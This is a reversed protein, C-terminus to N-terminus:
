RKNLEQNEVKELLKKNMESLELIMKKMESVEDKLSAIERKNEEIIKDQEKVAEITWPILGVYNVGIYGELPDIEKVLPPLIEEMEQAIVGYETRKEVDDKMVYSYTKISNIIDRANTLPEINEKLRRDSIDTIMGTYHIDGVVHLQASPATTGIGVNGSADVRIREAGATSFGLNDTTPRFMGTDSDGAFGYSPATAVGAGNTKLAFTGTTNTDLAGAWLRLSGVGGVVFDIQDNGSSGFYTNKDADTTIRFNNLNLHQTANHDGLNDAGSAPTEWTALGSADSTLVKGLGPTGGTIKVQGAVELKAGPTITGIGVDGSRSIRFRNTGTTLFDFGNFSSFYLNTGTDGTTKTYAGLGYHNLYSGDYLYDDDSSFTLGPSDNDVNSALPIRIAGNVHLKESPTTNGIGVNGLSDIRMREVANGSAPRTLLSLYGSMDSDTTTERGAKLGAVPNVTSGTSSFANFSLGMVPSSSFTGTSSIVLGSPIGSVDTNASRVELAGRPNDNGIGVGVLGSSTLKFKNVGGTTINLNSSQIQLGGMDNSVGGVGTMYLTKQTSGNSNGVAMRSIGGYSGFSFFNDPSKVTLNPADNGFTNPDVSTIVTNGYGDILLRTTPTNDSTGTTGPASTRLEVSSRGTGTSIGSSLVLNGGYKDTSSLPADGATILLQKGSGTVLSNRELGIIQDSDGSFSLNYSPTNAGIGVNGTSYYIDSGSTTWQSGLGSTQSTVYSKMAAVSAAQDTESGTTLNIVAASKARADTFYLNSGESINTTTLTVNSSLAQGNITTTKDVKNSSLNSISTQNNSINTSNTAIDSTNTAINTTNTSVNSNTTAISTSLNAIDSTNTSINSTNTAIDTTNTSVQSISSNLSADLDSAQISGDQIETSSVSGAGGSSLDDSVVWNTGDFKLIKGNVAGTTDVNTLSNLNLNVVGTQGNVSTVSNSGLVRDWTSGNYVAWDNISFSVLSNGEPDNSGAVNAIYYHGAIPAVSTQDVVSSADFTGKYILGDLTKVEWSTGNFQLIKGAALGAMTTSLHELGIEGDGIKSATISGDVVNFIVPVSAAGHATDIILNLASGLALLVASPASLVLNSGDNSVVSLDQSNIKVSKLDNFGSGTINLQDNSLTVSLVKPADNKRTLMSIDVSGKEMPSICSTLFLLILFLRLM